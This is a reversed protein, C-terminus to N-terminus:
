YISTIMLHLADITLTCPARAQSYTASSPDVDVTAVYDPRSKDAVILPLYVLTERPGKTAEQM